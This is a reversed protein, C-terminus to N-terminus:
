IDCKMCVILLESSLTVSNGEAVMHLGYSMCVSDCLVCESSLV